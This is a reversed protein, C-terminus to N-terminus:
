WETPWSSLLFGAFARCQWTTPLSQAPCHFLRVRQGRSFVCETCVMKVCKLTTTARGGTLPCAFGQHGGGSDMAPYQRYGSDCTANCYPKSIASLRIGTTCPVANNEKTAPAVIGQPLQGLTECLSEDCGAVGYAQTHRRVLSLLVWSKPCATVTVNGYFGRDCKIDVEDFDHLRPYRDKANTFTYGRVDPAKCEDQPVFEYALVLALMMLLLMCLLTTITAM